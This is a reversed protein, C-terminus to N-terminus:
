MKKKGERLKNTHSSNKLKSFLQIKNGQCLQDKKVNFHYTYTTTHYNYQYAINKKEKKKKKKKRKKKKKTTPIKELHVTKM